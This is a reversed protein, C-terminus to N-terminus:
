AHGRPGSTATVMARSAPRRACHGLRMNPIVTAAVPSNNQSNAPMSALASVARVLRDDPPVGAEDVAQQDGEGTFVSSKMKM